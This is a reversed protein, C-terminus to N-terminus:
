VTGPTVVALPILLVAVTQLVPHCLHGPDFAHLFVLRARGADAVVNLRSGLYCSHSDVRYLRLDFSLFVPHGVDLFAPPKKYGM